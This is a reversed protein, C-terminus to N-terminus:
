GSKLLKNKIKVCDRAFGYELQSWDIANYLDEFVTQVETPMEAKPFARSYLTPLTIRSPDQRFHYKANMVWLKAAHENEEVDLEDREIPEDRETCICSIDIWWFPSINRLFINMLCKDPLLSGASDTFAVEHQQKILESAIIVNEFYTRNGNAVLLDIDSYEDSSSDAVSGVLEVSDFEGSRQLLAILENALQIQNM